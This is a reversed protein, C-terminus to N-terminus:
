KMMADLRKKDESTPRHNLNLIIKALAKEDDTANQSAILTKLGDVDAPNVHHKLNMMATALTRENATTKKNDIIAQLTKKGQPSPYHKLRHMIIAMQHMASLGKGEEEAFGNVGWLLSFALLSLIAFRFTNVM